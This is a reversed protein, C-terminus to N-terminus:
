ECDYERQAQADLDAAHSEEGCGSCVAWLLRRREPRPGRGKDVIFEAQQDACLSCRFLHAEEEDAVQVWGDATHVRIM